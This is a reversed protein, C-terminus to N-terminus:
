CRRLMSEDFTVEISEDYETVHMDHIDVVVVDSVVVCEVKMSNLGRNNNNIRTETCEKDNTQLSATGRTVPPVTGGRNHSPAGAEKTFMAVAVPLAWIFPVFEVGTM